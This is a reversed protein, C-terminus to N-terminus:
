QIHIESCLVLTEVSSDRFQGYPLRTWFWLVEPFYGFIIKYKLINSM